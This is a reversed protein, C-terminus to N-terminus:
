PVRLLIFNAIDNGDVSLSIVKGAKVKEKTEFSQNFKGLARNVKVNRELNRGQHDFTSYLVAM